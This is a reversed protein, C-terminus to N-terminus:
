SLVRAAIVVLTIAGAVVALTWNSMQGQPVRRRRAADKPNNMPALTM